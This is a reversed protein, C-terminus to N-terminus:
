MVPIEHPEILPVSDFWASRLPLNAVLTPVDETGVRPLREYQVPKLVSPVTPVVLAEHAPVTDHLAKVTIPAVVSPLAAVVVAGHEPVTDHVAKVTSPVEGIVIVPEPPDALPPPHVKM